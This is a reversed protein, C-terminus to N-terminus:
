TSVHRADTLYRIQARLPAITVNQAGFLAALTFERCDPNPAVEALCTEPMKFSM